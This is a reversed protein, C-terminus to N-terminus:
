EKGGWVLAWRRRAVAVSEWGSRGKDKEERRIRTFAAALGISIAFVPDLGRHANAMHTSARVAPIPYSFLYCSVSFSAYRSILYPSTM